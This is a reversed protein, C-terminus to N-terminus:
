EATETQLKKVRREIEACAANWIGPAGPGNSASRASRVLAIMEKLCEPDPKM